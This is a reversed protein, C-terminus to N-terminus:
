NLDSDAVHDLVIRVIARRARDAGWAAWDIPTWEIPPGAGDVLQPLASLCDVCLGQDLPSIRASEGGCVPCIV